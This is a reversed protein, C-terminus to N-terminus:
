ASEDSFHFRIGFLDGDFWTEVCTLFAGPSVKVVHRRGRTEMTHGDDGADGKFHLGLAYGGSGGM